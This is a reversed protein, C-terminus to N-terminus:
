CLLTISSLAPKQALSVLKHIIFYDRYEGGKFWVQVVALRIAGRAHFVCWIGEITELIAGRLREPEDRHMLEIAETWSASLPHQAEMEADKLQKVLVRKEKDYKDIMDPWTTSDPDADYRARAGNLRKEVEDLRGRLVSVKEAGPDSFLTSASLESLQSRLANTLLAFSFTRGRWRSGNANQKAGSSVFYKYKPNATGSVHLKQGDLADYLIGSFPNSFNITPRGSRRTRGEIAHQVRYLLDPDIAAPYYGPIVEGDKERTGRRGKHPQYEGLVARNKLLKKLYSSDWKGSRAFCPTGQGNLKRLILFMGYGDACWVFIQRVTAAADAKLRYAGDVLEIWAPCAAGHPTKNKRAQDKKEQWAEGCMGSKRKSEQHGRILDDIMSRVQRADMGPCFEDEWPTLQIVHIGLKILSMVAPIAEFPDERTLRDLNEVILYSGSPVRGREVLDIFHALAHKSNKRHSGTFGSV